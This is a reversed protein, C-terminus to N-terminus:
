EYFGEKREVCLAFKSVAIRVMPVTKIVDNLFRPLRTNYKVELIVSENDLANYLPIDKNFLECNYKSSMINEDFTIRVDEYPYTYAIRNYDVIVSPILGKTKIQTIFDELVKRDNLKIKDFDKNIILDYEEKSIIDRKKYSSTNKKGKLELAIFSDDFNYYRIRYKERESLGDIKEYYAKNYIDDFYLSRIYYEGNKNVSNIDKNMVFSLRYKLIEAKKPTLLFKLEYRYNDDTLISM